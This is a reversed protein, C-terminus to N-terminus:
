RGPPDSGHGPPFRTGARDPRVLPLDGPWAGRGDAPTASSPTPVTDPARPRSAIIQAIGIGLVAITLLRELRPLEYFYAYVQTAVAFVQAGLPLVVASWGVIQAGPDFEVAPRWAAVAIAVSAASWLFDYPGEHYRAEVAAVSYVADGVTLCVLGLGLWSWSADVRWNMLPLAGLLAGLLLLDSLPYSLTVVQGLPDPPANRLVPQVVLAVMPTAVILVMVFGDLWRHWEIRAVRARVLLVLGSMFLPYCALSFVDTANPYPVVRDSSLGLLGWLAEGVWVCFVAAALLTWARRDRAHRAAGAACMVAAVLIVTDHLWDNVLRDPGATLEHVAEVVVAALLVGLM